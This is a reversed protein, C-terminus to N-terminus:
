SVGMDAASVRLWSMLHEGYVREIVLLLEGAQVQIALVPVDGLRSRRAEGLKPLVAQGGMRIFLDAVGEGSARLIRSGGTQDLVCGDHLSTLHAEFKTLFTKGSFILLTETPSRWALIVAEGTDSQLIYTACLPNPLPVGLIVRVTEAFSGHCDFYRLSAVQM